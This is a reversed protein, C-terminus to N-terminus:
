RHVVVLTDCDAHNGAQVDVVAPHDLPDVELIQTVCAIRDFEGRDVVGLAGVLQREEVDGCRRRAPGRHEVHHAAGGLLDEDREGDTCHM